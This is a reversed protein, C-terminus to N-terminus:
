KYHQSVLGNVVTCRILVSYKTHVYVTCDKREKAPVGLTITILTSLTACHYLPLNYDQLDYTRARGRIDFFKNSVQTTQDQTVLHRHPVVEDVRKVTYKSVPIYYYVTFYLVSSCLGSEM